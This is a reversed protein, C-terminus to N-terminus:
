SCFFAINELEGFTLELDIKTKPKNFYKGEIFEFKSM